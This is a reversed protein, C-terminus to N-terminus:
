NLLRTRVKELISAVQNIGVTRMPRLKTFGEQMEMLMAEIQPPFSYGLGKSHDGTKVFHQLSDVSETVIVKKVTEAIEPDQILFPIYGHFPNYVKLEGYIIRYDPVDEYKTYGDLENLVWRKFDKLDLKTSILLAKRLLDSVNNSSESAMEQLQIVIPQQDSM